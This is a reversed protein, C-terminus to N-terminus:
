PPLCDRRCAPLDLGIALTSRRCSISRMSPASRCDKRSRCASRLSSSDFRSSSTARWCCNEWASIARQTVPIPPCGHQRPEAGVERPWCRASSASSTDHRIPGGPLGTYPDAHYAWARDTSVTKYGRRILEEYVSSKGAGSLGEVLYNRKAM